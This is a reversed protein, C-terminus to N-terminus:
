DGYRRSVHPHRVQSDHANESRRSYERPTADRCGTAVERVHGAGTGIRSLCQGGTKNCYLALFPDTMSFGHPFSWNNLRCRGRLSGVKRSHLAPARRSFVERPRYPSPAVRPTPRGTRRRSQGTCVAFGGGPRHRCRARGILLQEARLVTSKAGSYRASRAHAPVRSAQCWFTTALRAVVIRM